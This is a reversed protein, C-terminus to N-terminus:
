DLDLCLRTFYQDAQADIQWDYNGKYLLDLRQQTNVLGVGGVVETKTAVPVGEFQQDPHVSNEVTLILGHEQIFLDISIYSSHSMSIGHKFANEILTILLLPAIKLQAPDGTVHYQLDHKAPNLRLRQLEIYDALYELETGLAVKDKDGHYIAFRMLDSLRTIADATQPSDESLAFSYVTNLSNFFFHPSIQHKLTHLEANLAEKQRKLVPLRNLLLYRSLGYVLGIPVLGMQLAIIAEEVDRYSYGSDSFLWMWDGEINVLNMGSLPSNTAVLAVMFFGGVLSAVSLIYLFWRRKMLLNPILYLINLYFGAIPAIFMFWVAPSEIVMAGARYHMLVYIGMSSWIFAHLMMEIATLRQLTVLKSGRYRMFAATLFILLSVFIGGMLGEGVDDRDNRTYREVEHRRDMLVDQYVDYPSYNGIQNLHMLLEDAEGHRHGFMEEIGRSWAILTDVRNTRDGMFAEVLQEYDTQSLGHPYRDNFFNQKSAREREWERGMQIRLFDSNEEAVWNIEHDSYPSVFVPYYRSQLEVFAFTSFLTELKFEFNLRRWDISADGITSFEQKADEWDMFPLYATITEPLKGDLAETIEIQGNLKSVRPKLLKRVQDLSLVDTLHPFMDLDNVMIFVTENGLPLTISKTREEITLWVEDGAQHFKSDIFYHLFLQDDDPNFGAIPEIYTIEGKHEFHFKVPFDEEWNEFDHHFRYRDMDPVFVLVERDPSQAIGLLPLLFLFLFLKRTTLYM